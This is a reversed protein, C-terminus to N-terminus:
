DKSPVMSPHTQTQTFMLFLDALLPVTLSVPEPTFSQSPHAKHPIDKSFAPQVRILMALFQLMLKHTRVM